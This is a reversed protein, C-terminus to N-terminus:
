AAVGSSRRQLPPFPEKGGENKKVSGEGERAGEGATAACLPTSSKQRALFSATRPMPGARRGLIMAIEARQAKADCSFAYGGSSPISCPSLGTARSTATGTEFMSSRRRPPDAPSPAGATGDVDETTAGAGSYGGGGRSFRRLVTSSSLTSPSPFSGRSYAVFFSSGRMLKAAERPDRGSLEGARLLQRSKKRNRGVGTPEKSTREEAVATVAAAEKGVFACGGALPDW